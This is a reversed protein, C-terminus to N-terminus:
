APVPPGRARAAAPAALRIFRPRPLPAAESPAAPRSLDPAALQVAALLSAALDPCLHSEGTPTGDPGLAIQVIGGGACLVAVHGGVMTQGRASAAAFGMATLSVVLILTALAKFGRTNM